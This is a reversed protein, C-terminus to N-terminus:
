GIDRIEMRRFGRYSSNVTIRERRNGGHGATTKFSIPPASSRKLKKVSQYWNPSQFRPNSSVRLAQENSAKASNGHGTLSPKLNATGPSIDQAQNVSQNIVQNFAVNHSASQHTTRARFIVSRHDGTSVGHPYLPQNLHNTLQYVPRAIRDKIARMCKMANIIAHQMILQKSIEEYQPKVEYKSATPSLPPDPNRKGPACRFNFNKQRRPAQSRGTECPFRCKLLYATTSRRILDMVRLVFGEDAQVILVSSNSVFPIEEDRHDFCTRDRPPPVATLSPPTRRGFPSPLHPPAIYPITHSLSVHYKADCISTELEPPRIRM